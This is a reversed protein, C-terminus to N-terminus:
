RYLTYNGGTVVGTETIKISTFGETPLDLGDTTGSIVLTGNEISYSPTEDALAVTPLLGAVLCLALLISLLRKKM